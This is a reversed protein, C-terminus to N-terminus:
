TILDLRSAAAGGRPVPVPSPAMEEPAEWALAGHGSAAADGDPTSQGRPRHGDFSEFSLAGDGLAVGGDRLMAVLGERDLRLGALVAPNEVRLVVRLQGGDQRLDIEIDGLGRPTLEIRTRGESLRVGAIQGRVGSHLDAAMPGAPGTRTPAAEGPAGRAESVAQVGTDSLFASRHAMRGPDAAPALDGGAPAPAPVGEASSATAPAGIQRVLDAGDGPPFPKAGQGNSPPGTGDGEQSGHGHPLAGGGAPWSPTAAGAPVTSAGASPQGQGYTAVGPRRLIADGHAEMAPSQMAAAPSSAMVGPRQVSSAVDGTSGMEIPASSALTPLAAELEGSEVGADGTPAVAPDAESPAPPESHGAEISPRQPDAIAGTWTLLPSTEHVGAGMAAAGDPPGPETTTAGGGKSEAAGRPGGSATAQAMTPLIAGFAPHGNAGAAENPRPGHRGAVGSSGKGPQHPPEAALATSNM